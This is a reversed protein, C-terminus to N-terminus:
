RGEGSARAPAPMGAAPTAAGAAPLRLEASLGGGPRPSLAIEGGHQRARARAVTLGIGSGRPKTTVGAEFVREGLRPDLGPGRDLVALAAGGAALPGLEIEVEGGEPSAEVANQLLNVLVQKVKRPDCRGSAEGRVSLSVGREHALGEHLAAVERALAGLDVRGLALPVLPRSFNLFEDLTAQMRDVERRLVSLRESAKGAVDPALLGGLGKVSALPNKLEHAIEASLASLEEVREAHLRLSEQQARLAKRLMRDFVLRVARGVGAGGAVLFALLAAATWSRAPSDWAPGFAALHLFAARGSHEAVPMALVGAAQFALFGLLLPPALSVGCVFALLVAAPLLPSALGGTLWALAMQGAVGVALNLPISWAGFGRRRYRVVEFAFFALLAAMVPLLLTRRWSAPDVVAAWTGLAFVVPIIVLRAGVMAGFLQSLEQRQIEEFGPPPPTAMEDARPPRRWVTRRGNPRRVRGPALSM